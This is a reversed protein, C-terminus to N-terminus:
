GAMFVTGLNVGTLHHISAVIVNIPRGQKRRILYFPVRHRLMLRVIEEYIRPRLIQCVRVYRKEFKTLFPLSYLHALLENDMLQRLLKVSPHKTVTFKHPEADGLPYIRDPDTARRKRKYNRQYAKYAESKRYKKNYRKQAAHRM